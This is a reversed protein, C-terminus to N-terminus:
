LYVCLNYNRFVEDLIPKVIEWNGGALRCGMKYTGIKLNKHDEKTELFQKVKYLANIMAEYNVYRKDRGYNYQAYLNIILKGNSEAYSFNGLKGKDGKITKQDAAKAEPYKEAISKAIGAGMTNFCNCCHIIVDCDSDLLNEGLYTKM